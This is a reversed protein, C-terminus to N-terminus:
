VNVWFVAMVGVWIVTLFIGKWLGRGLLRHISSLFLFFFTGFAFTLVLPSLFLGSLFPIEFPLHKTFQYSGLLYVLGYWALLWGAYLRFTDSLPVYETAVEATEVVAIQKPPQPPQPKAVQSGSAVPAQMPKPPNFAFAETV